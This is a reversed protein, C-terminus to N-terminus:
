RTRESLIELVAACLDRDLEVGFWARMRQQMADANLIPLGDCYVYGCCLDVKSAKPGDLKDAIANAYPMNVYPGERCARGALQDALYQAIAARLIGPAAYALTSNELAELCERTADKLTSISIDNHDPM